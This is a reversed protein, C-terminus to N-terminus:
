LAYKVFDELVLRAAIRDVQQAESPSFRPKRSRPPRDERAEILVDRAAVTSYRENWLTVECSAGQSVVCAAIVILIGLESQPCTMQAYVPCRTWCRPSSPLFLGSRAATKVLTPKRGDLWRSVSLLYRMVRRKCAYRLLLRSRVVGFCDYQRVLDRVRRATQVDKSVAFHLYTLGSSRLLAVLTAGSPMHQQVRLTVLEKCADAVPDYLAVGTKWSGYDVGLLRKGAKTHLRYARAFDAPRRVASTM